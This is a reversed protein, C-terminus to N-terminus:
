STSCGFPTGSDAVDDIIDEISAYTGLVTLLPFLIWLFILGCVIKDTMTIPVRQKKKALLYFLPPWGFIIPSGTLSGILEQLDSFFPIANAITYAFGLYSVSIVAWTWRSFHGGETVAADGFILRQLTRVFATQTFVYAVLIHFTILVGVISKMVGDSMSAPLFDDVQDGLIGYCAIVTVAYVATMIPYSINLACPFEGVPDKMEATMEVFRSHGQFAFIYAALSSYVRIFSVGDKLGVTTNEGFKTSNGDMAINIIILIIAVVIAVASPACIFSVHHLTRLQIPLILMGAAVLTWQWYCLEADPAIIALSEAAGLLYYPLVMGWAVVLTWKTFAAFKPGVLAHAIDAYSSIHPYLAKVHVLLQGSYISAVGFLSLSIMSPIWGLLASASPLSLVGTGMVDGMLLFTAHWWRADGIPVNVGKSQASPRKVSTSPETGSASRITIVEAEVASPKSAPQSLETSCM